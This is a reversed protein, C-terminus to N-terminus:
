RPPDSQHPLSSPGAEFSKRRSESYPSYLHPLYYLYPPLAYGPSSPYAPYMVPPAPYVPPQPYVPTYSPGPHYVPPPMFMGPPSITTPLSFAAPPTYVASPSHAAHPSPKYPDPFSQNSRWIAEQQARFMRYHDYFEGPRLYPDTQDRDGPRGSRWRTSPEQDKARRPADGTDLDMPVSEDLSEAM